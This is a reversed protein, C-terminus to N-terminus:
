NPYTSVTLWYVWLMQLTTQYKLTQQYSKEASFTLDVTDTDLVSLAGEGPSFTTQCGHPSTFTLTGDENEVLTPENGVLEETWTSRCDKCFIGTIDDATLLVTPDALLTEDYTVIYRWTSTPRQCSAECTSTNLYSSVLTGEITSFPLDGRSGFRPLTKPCSPGFFKLM